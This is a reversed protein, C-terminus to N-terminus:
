FSFGLFISFVSNKENKFANSSVENGAVTFNQEKGVNTLGYDYRAGIKLIDFEFGAGLAIGYELREFEDPDLDNAFDFSNDNSNNEVDANVMYAVYPGAHVNLKQGLNVVALLPIEIYGFKQTIEGSGLAGLNYDVESGKTNYLLEPQIALFDTLAFKFFLGGQYGFRLNQDNIDDNTSHFNSFNIGGKIGFKNEGDQAFTSCISSLFISLFIAKYTIKSIKM